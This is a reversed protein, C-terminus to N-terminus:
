ELMQVEGDKGELYYATVSTLVGDVDRVKKPQTGIDYGYKNRLDWIRSALRSVGCEKFAEYTTITKYTKMYQLVKTCQRDM